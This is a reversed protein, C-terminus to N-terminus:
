PIVGQSNALYKNDELEDLERGKTEPFTWIWVGTAVAFVAGLFIGTGLDYIQSIYAILIPTVLQVSRGINFAAGSMTNRIETPFTESFLPGYGGFFGTGFGVLFMFGLIMWPCQTFLNWLMTIMVLGLTMIGTYISFATRRGFRDAVSGFSLYGIIGGIQTIIIWIASKSLSFGRETYLYDPLWSYTFWYASMGFIALVLSICFMKQYKKSLLNCSSKVRHVTDKGRLQIADHSKREWLDSEPIYRRIVFVLVAPIVSILFCARWGIIPAFFGGVLSALLIGAPAGAQMISGYKGREKAPFAEAIYTQGAGWEGGIGLGTVIRFLLLSELSTACGCLFTGLSYIIITYQLVRKRGVRDALIGFLIGGIGTAALSVSIAYSFQITSLSLEARIPVSLNSLLLLDYFDFIWGATCMALIMFHIRGPKKCQNLLQAHIM